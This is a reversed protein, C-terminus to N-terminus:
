KTAKKSKFGNCNILWVPDFNLPHCFWGGAIGRPDGKVKLGTRLQPAHGGSLAVMLGMIGEGAGKVKPHNCCSHASGAVEGRYKCNYCANRMDKKM